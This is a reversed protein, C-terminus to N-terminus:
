GASGADDGAQLADYRLRLTALYGGIVVGFTLLAGFFLFGAAFWILDHLM